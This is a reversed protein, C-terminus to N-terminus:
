PGPAWVVASEQASRQNSLPGFVRKQDVPGVIRPDLGVASQVISGQAPPAEERGFTHLGDPSHQGM